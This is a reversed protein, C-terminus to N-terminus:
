TAATPQGVRVGGEPALPLSRVSRFRRERGDVPDTFAVEAALLQLPHRFDDTPVDKVVPYLPDDVIPVGLGWLHLRLQHTRGTRPSLRYVGHGGAEGELEVLTEANVRAGPVVEAQWSGNQKRIHNRVVVPLELDERLPALARYTKTVARREFATQYPGRWRQETALMLLGSTVRDLRHLPSLEPLGLEARLRVVVSQMVHRGRPITALFAPKDVVVLREDRHVVVVEGPVDAEAPLDRHFWVFSQPVYPDGDRVARGDADVFRGADLMAAVDVHEPLRHRLWAGMTAWGDARGRVKNPTCIRAADLGHRSPLPSRPPM